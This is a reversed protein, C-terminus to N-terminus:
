SVDVVDSEFQQIVVSVDSHAQLLVHQFLIAEIVSLVAICEVSQALGPQTVLSLVVVVVGLLLHM